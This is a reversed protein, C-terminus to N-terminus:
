KEGGLKSLKVCDDNMKAFYDDATEFLKDLSKTTGEHASAVINLLERTLETYRLRIGDGEQFNALFTGLAGFRSVAMSAQMLTVTDATGTGQREAAIILGVRLKVDFYTEIVEKCTRIYERRSVDRQIIDLNRTNLYGQYFSAGLSMIAIVFSMLSVLTSRDRIAEHHHADAHSPSEHASEIESV